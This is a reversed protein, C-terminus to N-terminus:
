IELKLQNFLNARFEFESKGHSFHFCTVSRRAVKGKKCPMCQLSGIVKLQDQYNKENAYNKSVFDINCISEKFVSFGDPVQYRLDGTVSGSYKDVFICNDFGPDADLGTSLPNGKLINYGRLSYEINPM